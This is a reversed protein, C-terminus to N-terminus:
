DITSHTHNTKWLLVCFVSCLRQVTTVNVIQKTEKREGKDTEAETM